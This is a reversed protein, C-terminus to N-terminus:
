AETCNQNLLRPKLQMTTIPGAYYWDEHLNSLVAPPLPRLGDLRRKLEDLHAYNMTKADKFINVVSFVSKRRRQTSQAETTYM